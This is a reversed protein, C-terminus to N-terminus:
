TGWTRRKADDRPDKPKPVVPPSAYKNDLLKKLEPGIQYDSMGANDTDHLHILRAIIGAMGMGSVSTDAEAEIKVGKYEILVRPM